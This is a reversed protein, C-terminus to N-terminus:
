ILNIQETTEVPANKASTLNENNYKIVGIKPKKVAM